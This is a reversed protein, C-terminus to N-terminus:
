HSVLSWPFRLCAGNKYNGEKLSRIKHAFIRANTSTDRNLTRTAGLKPYWSLVIDERHVINFREFRLRELFFTDEKGYHGCFDEDYGGVELYRRRNMLMDIIAHCGIYGDERQRRFTYVTNPDRLDLRTISRLAEATIVHDIDACLVWKTDAIRFALNRAGAMNWPIDQNIRYIRLNHTQRIRRLPTPSCDDILIYHVLNSPHQRWAVSHLPLMFHQNYFTHAISISPRNASDAPANRTPAGNISRPMRLALLKTSLTM